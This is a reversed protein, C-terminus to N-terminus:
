RGQTALTRFFTRTGREDSGAPLWGFLEPFVAFSMKRGETVLIRYLERSRENIIKIQKARQRHNILPNRLGLDLLDKRSLELRSLAETSM